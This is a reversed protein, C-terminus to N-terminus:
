NAAVGASTGLGRSVTWLATNTGTVATEGLLQLMCCLRPMPPFEWVTSSYDRYKSAAFFFFLYYYYVIQGGLHLSRM